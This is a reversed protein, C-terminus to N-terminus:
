WLFLLQLLLLVKGRKVGDKDMEMKPSILITAGANIGDKEFLMRFAMCVEPDTKSSNHVLLALTSDVKCQSTQYIFLYKISGECSILNTVAAAVLNLGRM